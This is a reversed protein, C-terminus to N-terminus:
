YETFLIQGLSRLNHDNLSAVTSDIFSLSINSKDIFFDSHIFTFSLSSFEIRTMLSVEAAFICVLLIIVPLLHMSQKKIESIKINLMMIVFLFLVAIAGVYVVLFTIPLFELKLLFLLASANCFSLILFLASYVPNKSIIVLVASLLALSSFLSFLIFFLSM